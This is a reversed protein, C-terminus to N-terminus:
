VKKKTNFLVGRENPTLNHILRSGAELFEELDLSVEIEKMEEFIPEFISFTEKDLIDFDIEEYWLIGTKKSDLLEFVEKLKNQKLQNFIDQSKHTVSPRRSNNASVTNRANVRQKGQEYLYDGIPLHKTNREKPMRGTKPKHIIVIPETKKRFREQRQQFNVGAMITKSIRNIEPKFSNKELSAKRSHEKSREMLFSHQYLQEYRKQSPPRSHRHM